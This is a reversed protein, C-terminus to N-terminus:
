NIIKRPIGKWFLTFRRAILLLPFLAHSVKGSSFTVSLIKLLTGSPNEVQSCLWNIAQAGNLLEDDRILLAGKKDMDYGEPILSHNERADKIEINSLGSKLELLEAFHNCFPCQGDYIFVLKSKM